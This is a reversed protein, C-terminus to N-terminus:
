RPTVNLSLGALNGTYDVVRTVSGLFEAPDGLAGNRNV